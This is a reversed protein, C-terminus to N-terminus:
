DNVEMKVAKRAFEVPLFADVMMKNAMDQAIKVYKDAESEDVVFAKERKPHTGECDDFKAYYIPNEGYDLDILAIIYKKM